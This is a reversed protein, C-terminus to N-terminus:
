AAKIGYLSITSGSRFNNASAELITVSNIAATSRWQGLNLSVQADAQSGQWLVAKYKNTNAYSNIEYKYVNFNSTNTSPNGQEYMNTTNIISATTATTGNGRFYIFNYNSTSDGNFRLSVTDTAATFSLSAVPQWPVFVTTSVSPVPTEADAVEVGVEHAPTFLPVIKTEVLIM